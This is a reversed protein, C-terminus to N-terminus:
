QLRSGGKDANCQGQPQQLLTGLVCLPDKLFFFFMRVSVSLHLLSDNGHLWACKIWFRHHRPVKQWGTDGFRRPPFTIGHM